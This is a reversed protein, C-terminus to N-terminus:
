IDGGKAAFLGGVQRAVQLLHEDRFRSTVLSLGVPMDDEGKFGPVNIVPMHLATWMANFDSSGTGTGKPAVDIASPTVIATYRDAIEDM